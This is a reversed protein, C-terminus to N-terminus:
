LNQSIWELVRKEHGAPRVREFVHAIKGDKGIIFTTRVVGWYKVAFMQKRQWVGYKEAVAHDEDALLPFNLKFKKAFASVAKIPDPSIGLIAVKAKHYEPLADRFGCAQKTCGPTDAHPYFYLVIPQKGILAGIDITEGMSSPLKFRPASQGPTPIMRTSIIYATPSYRQLRKHFAHCHGLNGPQICVITLALEIEEPESSGIRRGGRYKQGSAIEKVNIM